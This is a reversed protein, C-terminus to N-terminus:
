KLSPGLPPWQIEVWYPRYLALITDKEWNSIFDEKFSTIIRNKDIEPGQRVQREHYRSAQVIPIKAM